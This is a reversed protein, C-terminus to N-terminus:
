EERMLFCHEVMYDEWYKLCVECANMTNRAAEIEDPNIKEGAVARDLYDFIVNAQLTMAYLANVLQIHNRLGDPLNNEVMFNDMDRHFKERDVRYVIGNSGRHIFLKKM